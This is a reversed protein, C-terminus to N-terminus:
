GDQVAVGKKHEAEWVAHRMRGGPLATWKGRPVNGETPQEGVEAFKEIAKPNKGVSGTCSTSESAPLRSSGGPVSRVGGFPVISATVERPIIESDKNSVELKWEGLKEIESGAPAPNSTAAPLERERGEPVIQESAPDEGNGSGDLSM